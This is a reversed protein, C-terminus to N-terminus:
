GTKFEDPPVIVLVGDLAKSQFSPSHSRSPTTRHIFSLHQPTIGKTNPPTRGGEGDENEIGGTECFVSFIQAVVRM